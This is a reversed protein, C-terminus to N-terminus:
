NSFQVSWAGTPDAQTAVGNQSRVHNGPEGRELADLFQRKKNRGRVELSVSTRGSDEAWYNAWIIEKAYM